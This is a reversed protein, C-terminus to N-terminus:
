RIRLNLQVHLVTLSLNLQLHPETLSLNLQIHPETLSLFLQGTIKKVVKVPFVKGTLRLNLQHCTISRTLFKFIVPFFPILFSSEKAIKRFFVFVKQFTAPIKILKGAWIKKLNVL